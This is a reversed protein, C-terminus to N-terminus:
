RAKKLEDILGIGFPDVGRLIATYYSAVDLVYCLSMLQSLNGRGTGTVQNTKVGKRQLIAIFADLSKTEFNPENARRLFIPRLRKDPQEWAEVENHLFDPASDFTAHMKANENLCTKFRRAVSKTVSSAFICPEGNSVVSAIQKSLNGAIPVKSAIMERTKKLSSVTEELEWEMGDMLSASRLVAVSAFLSYPLTYRPAESLRIKVHVIGEKEAVEKLKGGASIAVMDPHKKGITEAMRLTEETDGSTSCVIVLTKELKMKPVNGTFVSVEVGGSSLFWDSIIDGATASGGVALYVVREYNKRGLEVQTKLAEEVNVPWSEYLQGIRRPDVKAIEQPTLKEEDEM